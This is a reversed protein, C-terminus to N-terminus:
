KEGELSDALEKLKGGVIAEAVADTYAKFDAERKANGQQNFWEAQEADSAFTRGAMERITAVKSARDAAYCKALMDGTNPTPSPTSLKPSLLLLAGLICAILPTHKM